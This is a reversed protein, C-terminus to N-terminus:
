LRVMTRKLEAQKVRPKGDVKIELGQASHWAVDVSHGRFPVGTLTFHDLGFPLPDVVFAEDDVPRFGAVYKIILNVVWSHQYDDCGRYECPRGTLPNYHEFCNPRGVDGDFFMMRVFKRILEAARPKLGPDLEFSARALAECVHSNTMPWTRGNWPCNRRMGKWEPTTSFLEDNASSSPVPHETWFEDPNLLHNRLAGLHEEGAVDTMFPYFCVASKSRLKQMTDANLDCFMESSSDWMEERIAKATARARELWRAAEEKKGLRLAIKALAAKTEYLYVSADVGKIPPNLALWMDGYPDAEVYRPMYEQGTEGQNIVDYLHTQKEDRVKDFFEVCRCLAPYAKELFNADPHLEDVALVARGWNAHYIAERDSKVDYDTRDRAGIKAPFHGADAQNEFFNLVSGQGLAPSHMWRTELAHCQASYSILNRFWGINPGEFVCPHKLNDRGFEIRNLNIGYWRYWYYKEFYEDSCTFHPVSSFFDNWAAASKSIPDSSLTQRLLSETKEPELGLSMSVTRECAGRAPILMKFHLALYVHRLTLVNAGPINRTTNRNSLHGAAIDETFPALKWFPFNSEAVTPNESILAAFSDAEVDGALVHLIELPDDDLLEIEEAAMTTAYCKKRFSFASADIRVTDQEGVSLRDAPQCTWVILHITRNTDSRNRVTFKAALNDTKLVCREEVVSLDGATYEQRLRSPNWNREELRLEIEQLHEDLFTATFFPRLKFNVFYGADWYGPKDLFLPFGPAWLTAGGGGLYWKDNRELFELVPKDSVHVVTGKM